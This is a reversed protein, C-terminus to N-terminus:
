RVKKLQEIIKAVADGAARAISEPETDQLPIRINCDLLLEKNGPQTVQLRAHLTFIKRALDTEFALLEGRIYGLQAPDAKKVSVGAKDANEALALRIARAVLAGPQMLWKRDPDATIKGNADRYQFRSGAGSCNRLDAVQFFMNGASSSAAPVIDFYVTERYPAWLCGTLLFLLLLASWFCSKM